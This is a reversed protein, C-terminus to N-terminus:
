NLDNCLLFSNEVQWDVRQHIIAWALAPGSNATRAASNNTTRVAHTRIGCKAWKASVTPSHVRGGGLGMPNLHPNGPDSGTAIQADKEAVGDAFHPENQRNAMAIEYSSLVLKKTGEISFHIPM